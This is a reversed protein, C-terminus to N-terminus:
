ATKLKLLAKAMRVPHEVYEHHQWSREEDPTLGTDRNKELLMAVQQQVTESPKLALIAEPAPLSALFKESQNQLTAAM